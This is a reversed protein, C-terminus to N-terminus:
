GRRRRGARLAAARALLEDVSRALGHESRAQEFWALTSRRMPEGALVVRAIADGLVRPSADAAVEGNVGDVVLEAAANDEGAVVVSPTAAAAAEAVVLGFGERASPNVLVSAERYRRRLEADDIRGLLHVENAIGAAGAARRVADTEPGSGAIFARLHPVTTRAHALAAPIADVRKDAIHRGVFLVAPAKPAVTTALPEDSALDVLGLVLPDVRRRYGRLRRATFGSNVTVIRGVHVAASQLLWAITGTVAGAYGRWKRWSWVELWDVALVTGSGLLAFRAAFVNLVPLAAVVVLDYSHRRRVFHRFLGFAFGVASSTTRTGGPDYIDGRWVGAIDFPAHPAADTAWDSRTVYTVHNGREVFLEAMRRYVREGGGTHVPYLCDYAIAVRMPEPM